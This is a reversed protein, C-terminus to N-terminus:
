QARVTGASELDFGDPWHTRLNWVSGVLNVGALNAGDLSAGVLNAGVLNAGALNAGDLSAGDLIACALSAGTLHAAALYARKLLTRDLNAGALNAGGLNAGALNAGALNADVLSAGILNACVLNAGALIAGDLCANALHAGDLSAGALSAGDLQAGDLNAGDLRAGDLNSHELSTDPWRIGKLQMSSLDLWTLDISELELEGRTLTAAHTLRLLSAGDISCESQRDASTDRLSASALFCQDWYNVLLRFSNLGVPLEQGEPVGVQRDNFPHAPLKNFHENVRLRLSNLIATPERGAAEVGMAGLWEAFESGKHINGALETYIQIVLQREEERLPVQALVEMAEARERRLPHAKGYENMLADLQTRVCWEALLYHRFIEPHFEFESDSEAAPNLFFLVFATRVHSLKLESVFQRVDASELLSRAPCKPAHKPWSAVWAMEQLLLRYDGSKFEPPFGTHYSSLKGQITRDICTRLVRARSPAPEGERWKPLVDRAVLYLLLPNHAVSDGSRARPSAALLRDGTVATQQMAAQWRLAWQRVTADDFPELRIVQAEHKAELRRVGETAISSRMSVVLTCGTGTALAILDGFRDQVYTADHSSMEDFGDILFVLNEETRLAPLQLRHNPAFQELIAKSLDSEKYIDQWAVLLPARKRDVLYQQALRAAAVRMMSSKGVGMEGELVVVQNRVDALIECLVVEGHDSVAIDEWAKAPDKKSMRRCRARPSVYLASQPIEDFIRYGELAAFHTALLELAERVSAPQKSKLAKQIAEDALLKEAEACILDFIRGRVAGAYERSVESSAELAAAGALWEGGLDALENVLQWNRPGRPGNPSLVELWDFRTSVRREALDPLRDRSYQKWVEQSIAYTGRSLEQQVGRLFARHIGTILHQEATPNPLVRAGVRFLIGALGGTKGLDDALDRVWGEELVLEAGDKVVSGLDKAWDSGRTLFDSLFMPFRGKPATPPVLENEM